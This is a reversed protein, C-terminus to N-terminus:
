PATFRGQCGSAPDQLQYPTCRHNKLRDTRLEIGASGDLALDTYRRGLALLGNGEDAAEGRRGYLARLVAADTRAERGAALSREVEQRWAAAVESADPRLASRALLHYPSPQLAPLTGPLRFRVGPATSDAQAALAAPALLLLSLVFASRAM